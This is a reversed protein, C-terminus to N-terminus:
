NNQRAASKMQTFVKKFEKFNNLHQNKHPHVKVSVSYIDKNLIKIKSNSLIKNLRTQKSDQVNPETFFHETSKDKDAIQANKRQVVGYRPKRSMEVPKQEEEKIIFQNGDRLHHRLAKNSFLGIENIQHSFYGVKKQFAKTYTAQTQNIQNFMNNEYPNRKCDSIFQAGVMQKFLTQGSESGTLDADKPRSLCEIQSTNKLDMGRM